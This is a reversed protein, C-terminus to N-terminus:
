KLKYFVKNGFRLDIYDVARRRDKIEDRVIRTLVTLTHEADDDRKFIMRFGDTARAHVESPVNVFFSFDTVPEGIVTPLRDALFAMRDITRQDLARKGIPVEIGDTTIRMILSGVLQPAADYAFGERDIYACLRSLGENNTALPLSSAAILPTSSATAVTEDAKGDACLIAFLAREEVTIALTRGSSRAVQVSRIRPFREQLRRIIEADNVFPVFDGPVVLAYPEVLVERVAARVEDSRVAETGLVEIADIRFREAHVVAFLGVALLICMTLIVLFRLRIRIKKKKKRRRPRAPLEVRDKARM